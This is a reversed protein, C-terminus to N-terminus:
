GHALKSSHREPKRLDIWAATHPRADFVGLDEGRATLSRTPEAHAYFRVVPACQNHSMSSTSAATERVALFATGVTAFRPQRPVVVPSTRCLVPIVILV